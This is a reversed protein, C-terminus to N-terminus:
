ADVQQLTLSELPCDKNVYIALMDISTALSTPRYGFHKEFDDGESAKWDRSMPGFNASGNILAPPATSSGKGEIEAKVDPYFRKFGDTWLLMLNIMTDSGIAKIDGSVEGSLKQYGALKPDIQVSGTSQAARKSQGADKSQSAASAESNGTPQQDSGFVRLSILAVWISVGVALQLLLKM